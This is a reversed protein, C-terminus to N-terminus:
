GSCVSCKINPTMKIRYIKNETIRFLTNYFNKPNNLIKIVIMEIKKVIREDIERGYCSELSKKGQYICNFCPKGKFLAVVGKNNSAATHILIKNNKKCYEGLLFRIEMNDTCDVVTRCEKLIRINRATLDLSFAKIQFTKKTKLVNKAAIAKPMGIHKNLYFNNLGEKEVIDRDILMLSKNKLQKAIRSGIRGLGIIAIM